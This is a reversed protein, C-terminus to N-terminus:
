WFPDFFTAGVRTFDLTKDPDVGILLFVTRYGRVYIYTLSGPHDPLAVFTVEFSTHGNHLDSQQSWTGDGSLPEDGAAAGAFASAPVDVFTFTGDDEFTLRPSGTETGDASWTGNFGGEGLDYPGSPACSSLALVAVVVLVARRM